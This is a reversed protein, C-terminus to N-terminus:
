CLDALAASAFSRGCSECVYHGGAIRRWQDAITACHPCSGTREEYVQPEPTWPVTARLEPVPFRSRDVPSLPEAPPSVLEANAFYITLEDDGRVIWMTREPELGFPFSGAPLRCVVSEAVRELGARHMLDGVVAPLLEVHMTSRREDIGRRIGVEGRTADVRSAEALPLM